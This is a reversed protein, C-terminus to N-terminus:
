EWLSLSLLVSLSFIFEENRQKLREQTQEDLHQDPQSQSSQSANSTEIQQERRAATDIPNIVSPPALAPATVPLGLENQIQLYNMNSLKIDGNNSRINEIFGMFVGLGASSIYILDKFNVLINYKGDDVLEQIEKELMPATHADLYGKIYLINVKGEERKTVEFSEM